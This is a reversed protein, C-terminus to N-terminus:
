QRKMWDRRVRGNPGFAEEAAACARTESMRSLFSGYYSLREDFFNAHRGGEQWDAPQLNLQAFRTRAEPQNIQWAPCKAALMRAAVFDDLAAQQPDRTQAGTPSSLLFLTSAVVARLGLLRLKPVLVASQSPSVMLCPQHRHSRM